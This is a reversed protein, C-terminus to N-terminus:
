KPTIRVPAPPQALRTLRAKHRLDLILDKVQDYTMFRVIRPRAQDLTLPPAGPQPKRQIEQYLGSVAEPTVVKAITARLVADGLVRERDAALRRRLGPDRDLGRRVAEAALLRRDIVEDLAHRFAESAVPPNAPGFGGDAAAARVDGAWITEGNLTAVAIDNSAGAPPSAAHRACGTLLGVIALGTLVLWAPRRLVRAKM